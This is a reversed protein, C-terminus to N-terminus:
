AAAEEETLQSLVIERYTESGAMLETHTGDGVVHGEDLVLICDADRVSSVRQAVVVLTADAAASALADRLRAETAADLASFSDDFLYVSPRAVLVRAVALRQRQGGSVNSGGQAISAQLGEPLATVFDRAQAIDLARWLEEDSADPNGYRLNSAVTGSFLYPRQTVLGVTAALATRDVTRVDTGGLLVQGADADFLRPVLQLLTTKGSGTSGVIATTRGPLATLSVGHLVPKQAGPYRFEVDRLELGGSSRPPAAVLPPVVSSATDLVEQIREACVRARPSLIFALMALMVAQLIQTLYQLFAILTGPQLTGDDVRHGGFWLVAISSFEMIVTVTPMMLAQIHGLRLSVALTDDNAGAFRSQEHEDRVFARVVRLGTLQERMVKNIRDVRQQLSASLPGMRGVILTMATVLVPLVILLLLSMSVDQRLALLVSGVGMIPAAVMLTFVMVVLTQIQQVDNTTRTILSAAGFRGVERVSFTQVHAFVDARLDRGLAMATRASFYVATGACVMQVLTLALMVGGIRLVHGTDGPLVGNNIVDANLTPLYLTASIQVLQLATIAAIPKRYPRSYAGLLRILM